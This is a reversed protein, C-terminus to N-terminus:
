GGADPLVPGSSLLQLEAAVNRRAPEEWRRHGEQTAYLQPLELLGRLVAARGAAFADDSVAAYEERVQAAYRGYREPPAALVALDADCLLAGQRDDRATRHGATLMVLRAVEGVLEDPAGLGRLEVGALDASRQENDGAAPEYVADHFFAALVVAAPVPAALLDLAALVEALHRLDHYRRHPERYRALLRDGAERVASTTRHSVDGAAPVDDGTTNGDGAARGGAAALWRGQLQAEAPAAPWGTPM